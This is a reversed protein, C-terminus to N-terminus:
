DEKKLLAKVKEAVEDLTKSSKIIELVLLLLTERANEFQKDTMGEM